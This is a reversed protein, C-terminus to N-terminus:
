LVAKGDGSWLVRWYPISGHARTCRAKVQLGIGREANAAQFSQHPSQAELLDVDEVSVVPASGKMGSEGNLESLLPVENVRLMEYVGGVGFSAGDQAPDRSLRMLPDITPASMNKCDTMGNLRGGDASIKLDTGFDGRNVVSDFGWCRFRGRLM